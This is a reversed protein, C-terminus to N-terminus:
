AVPCPGPPGCEQLSPRPCLPRPFRADPLAGGAVGDRRPARLRGPTCQTLPWPPVRGFRPFPGCHVCRSSVPSTCVCVSGGIGMGLLTTLTEQSGEKAALDGANGARAFHHTLAARTAGGAVGTIARAVSGACALFLFARQGLAPALLEMTLGVDNLLDALLRYQKAEADLDGSQAAAFLVGGVMGALDRVFFASLASLATAGEKGVGVGTLIAHHTAMGRVYSCLAQM